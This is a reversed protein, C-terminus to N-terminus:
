DCDSHLEGEPITEGPRWNDFESPGLLDGASIEKDVWVIRTYCEWIKRGLRTRRKELAVEATQRGKHVSIVKKLPEEVRHEDYILAYM